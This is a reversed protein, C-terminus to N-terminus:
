KLKDGIQQNEVEKTKLDNALDDRQKEIEKTAKSIELEKVNEANQIKSKLVSLEADKQNLKESLNRESSARLEILEKEKNSIEIQLSEKQEALAIKKDSEKEKEIITLRENIEEQFQHDRVQKLLDAFGAEDVKFTKKCNPCIIENM